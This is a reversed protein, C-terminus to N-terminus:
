RGAPRAPFRRGPGHPVPLAPAPPAASDAAPSAPGFWGPWETLGPRAAAPQRLLGAAPYYGRQLGFPRAHSAAPAPSGPAFSLDALDAVRPYRLADASPQAHGPAAMLLFCAAAGLFRAPPFPM